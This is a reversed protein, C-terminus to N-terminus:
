TKKKVAICYNTSKLTFGNLKVYSGGQSLWVDM